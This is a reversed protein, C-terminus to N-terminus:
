LVYVSLMFAGRGQGGGVCITAGFLVVVDNVMMVVGRWGCLGFLGRRM